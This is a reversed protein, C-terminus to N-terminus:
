RADLAVRFGVEDAGRTPDMFGMSAPSDIAPDSSRFSSGM